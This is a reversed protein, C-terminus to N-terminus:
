GLGQFVTRHALSCKKEAGTAPGMARSGWELAEDRGTHEEGPGPLCSVSENLVQDSPSLAVPEAVKLLILSETGWPACQHVNLIIRLLSHSNVFCQDLCDANRCGSQSSNSLVPTVRYTIENWLFIQFVSKLLWWNCKGPEVDSHSIHIKELFGGVLVPVFYM